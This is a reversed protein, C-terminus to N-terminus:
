RLIKISKQRYEEETILGDERAKQLERIQEARTKSTNDIKQAKEETIIKQQKTNKQNGADTQFGSQNNIINETQLNQDQLDIKRFDGFNQNKQSIEDNKQNIQTNKQYKKDNIEFNDNQFSAKNVSDDKEFVTTNLNQVGQVTATEKSSQAQRSGYNFENKERQNEIGKSNGFVSPQCLLVFLAIEGFIPIAVVLLLWTSFGADNLRRVTISLMPIIMVLFYLSVLSTLLTLYIRKDFVLPLAFFNFFIAVVVNELMTLWYDKVGIRGSFNLFNSLM